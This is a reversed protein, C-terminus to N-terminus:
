TGQDAPRALGGKGSAIIIAELKHDARTQNYARKEQLAGELDYGFKKGYLVILHVSRAIRNGIMFSTGSEPWICCISAMIMHLAEGRNEPVEWFDDPGYTPELEHGRACAFDLLRILADALEVEAMPRHPLKDDLLNRREGALAESIESVALALLEYPNRDLPKGEPTYWWHRNEQHIDRALRNIDIHSLDKM